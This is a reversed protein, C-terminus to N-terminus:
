ACPSSATTLSCWCWAYQRLTPLRQGPLCLGQTSYRVRGTVWPLSKRPDKASISPPLLVPWGSCNALAPPIPVSLTKINRSRQVGKRERRQDHGAARSWLHSHSVPPVPLVQLCTCPLLLCFSGPCYLYPRKSVCQGSKLSGLGLDKWEKAARLTNVCGQKVSGWFVLRFLKLSSFLQLFQTGHSRTLFRSCLADRSKTSM